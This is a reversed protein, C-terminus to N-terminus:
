WTPRACIPTSIPAAPRTIASCYGLTTFVWPENFSIWSQVRDGLATMMLDAYDSFRQATDRNPWGGADELAQPLDWHYLTLLPSRPRLLSDVLRSYFDLGKPKTQGLRRGPHAAVRDLLSLQEDAARQMIRM